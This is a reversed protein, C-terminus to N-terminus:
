EDFHAFKNLDFAPVMPLKIANPKKKFPTPEPDPLRWGECDTTVEHMRDAAAVLQRATNKHVSIGLEPKNIARKLRSHNLWGERFLQEGQLRRGDPFEVTQTLCLDKSNWAADPGLQNTIVSPTGFAPGLVNTGTCSGVFYRARSIAFCQLGFCDEIQSLDIVHDSTYKLPKTGFHGIRVVQGGQEEVIHRIMTEYSGPDKIDRLDEDPRESYGPERWHVVAFWRAPDVGSKILAERDGELRSKPFSLRAIDQFGPIVGSDINRGALIINSYRGGYKQWADSCSDMSGAYINFVGLPVATERTFKFCHDIYTNCKIIERHIESPLNAEVILTASEFCKKVSAAVINQGVFEGLSQATLSAFIITSGINYGALNQKKEPFDM